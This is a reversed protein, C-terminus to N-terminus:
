AARRRRKPAGEVHDGDGAYALRGDNDVEMGERFPHAGCWLMRRHSNVGVTGATLVWSLAGRTAAKSGYGRAWMKVRDPAVRAITSAALTVDIYSPAGTEDPPGPNFYLYCTYSLGYQGLCHRGQGTGGTLELLRRYPTREAM